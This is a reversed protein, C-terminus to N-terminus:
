CSPSSIIEVLEEEELKPKQLLIHLFPSYPFAIYLYLIPQLSNYPFFSNLCELFSSIKKKKKKLFYFIFLIFFFFFFNPFLQQNQRHSYHTWRQLTSSVILITSFWILTSNSDVHSDVHAWASQSKNIKPNKKRKPNLTLLSRSNSKTALGMYNM